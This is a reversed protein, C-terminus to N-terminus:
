GLFYMNDFSSKDSGNKLYGKYVRYIYKNSGGLTEVSSDPTIIETVVGGAKVKGTFDKGVKNYIANKDKNKNYPDKGKRSNEYNYVETVTQM